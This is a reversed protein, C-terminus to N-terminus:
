YWQDKENPIEGSLIPEVDELIADEVTVPRWDDFCCALYDGITESVKGCEQCVHVGIGRM